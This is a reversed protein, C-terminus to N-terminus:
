KWFIHFLKTIGIKSAFGVIGGGVGAITGIVVKQKFTDKKINDIEQKNMKYYAESMIRDNKAELQITYIDDTMGKRGYEHNGIVVSKMEKFDSTLENLSAEFKEFRLKVEEM